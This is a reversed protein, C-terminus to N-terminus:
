TTEPTPEALRGEQKEVISAILSLVVSSAFMWVGWRLALESGGPLGKIALVLMAIVLVDLLSWKGAHRAISAALTPGTRENAFALLALKLTPFAVTFALLVLGIAVDGGRVLTTIGGLLSYSQEREASTDPDLLRVWGDWRGFDTTLTMAPAVLGLGLLVASVLTFLRVISRRM